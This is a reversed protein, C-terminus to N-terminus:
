RAVNYRVNLITECRVIEAQINAAAATSAVKMSGTLSAFKSAITNLNALKAQISTKM